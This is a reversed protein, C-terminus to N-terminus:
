KLRAYRETYLPPTTYTCLSMTTLSMKQLLTEAKVQIQKESLSCQKQFM